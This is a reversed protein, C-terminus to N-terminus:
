RPKQDVQMAATLAAKVVARDVYPQIQGNTWGTLISLNSPSIGRMLMELCWTQQAQTVIPLVGDVGALGEVWAQWYAEIQDVAIPQGEHVFLAAQEDKRQKLWKTLPNNNYSGYRKGLIWQNLPIACFKSALSVQLYSQDSDSIYQRRTLAVIENPSLGSGFLVYALAAEQSSAKRSRALIQHVWQAPLEEIVSSLPRSAVIASSNSHPRDGVTPLLCRMLRDLFDDRDPWLGHPETTLAMMMYGLLASNLVGALDLCFDDGRGEVAFVTMFYAAVQRNAVILRQGLVQRMTTPYQNAEGVLSRLLEGIRDGALLTASAYERLALAPDALPETQEILTLGLSQWIVSEEILALLLGQKNGFQRFLTVENVGAAEAIQRTTTGSVGQGMFLELASEILRQRTSTAAMTLWVLTFWFSRVPWALVYALLVQM